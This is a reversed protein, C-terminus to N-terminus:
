GAVSVDKSIIELVEEETPVHGRNPIPYILSVEKPDVIFLEFSDYDDPRIAEFSDWVGSVEVTRNGFIYHTCLQKVRKNNKARKKM